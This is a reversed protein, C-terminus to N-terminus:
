QRAAQSAQLLAKPDVGAERVSHNGPTLQRPFHNGSPYARAPGGALVNNEVVSGPFYHELTKHGVGTGSGFIGYQNHPAVNHRFIFGHHPKGDAIIVHGTQYATNHEIIISRTGNLLQFLTGSGGWRDGGIDDFLNNAILIRESRGSPHPNTDRGLINIGAASHRVINNVFAVDRVAAWPVRGRENRVTLLIAFGDQAHVWNNEFLNGDVLVRRANKLEFLNKVNWRRRERWALPKYLHNRHIRIDAPVRAKAPCVAGGFMVNEGAAVLTNNQILFPGPGAWGAIAQSDAGPVGFNSLHSAVVATHASNMAIGRRTGHEPHGHLLCRRFIIHHPIAETPTHRTGLVVLNTLKADPAPTIELHELYYHHAGRAATIVPARAAILKPMHKADRPSVRTDPSAMDANEGRIRIWGHGQKRPLTFPGRYTQGAQLVLADGPRATNLAAQLEGPAVHRIRHPKAAPSPDVRARPTQPRKVTADPAPPQRKAQPPTDRSASDGASSGHRHRKSKSDPHARGNDLVDADPEPQSTAGARPAPEPRATNEPPTRSCQAGLLFVIGLYQPHRVPLM